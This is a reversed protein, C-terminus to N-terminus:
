NKLDSIAKSYHDLTSSISKDISAITSIRFDIYDQFFKSWLEIQIFSLSKLFDWYDATEKMVTHDIGLKDFFQKESLRWAGFSTNYSHVYKTFLDAYGQLYIPIQFEIKQLIDSTTNKTLDCVSIKENTDIKQTEKTANTTSSM